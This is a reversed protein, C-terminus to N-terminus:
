LSFMRARMRGESRKLRHAVSNRKSTSSAIFIFAILLGLNSTAGLDRIDQNYKSHTLQKLLQSVSFFSIARCTFITSTQQM